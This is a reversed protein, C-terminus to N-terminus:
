TTRASVYPNLRGECRLLDPLGQMEFGVSHDALVLRRPMPPLSERGGDPSRGARDDGPVTGQKQAKVVHRRDGVEGRVTFVSGSPTDPDIFIGAWPDIQAGEAADRDQRCTWGIARLHDCGRHQDSV